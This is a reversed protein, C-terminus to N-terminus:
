CVFFIGNAPDNGALDACAGLAINGGGSGEEVVIFLWPIAGCVM